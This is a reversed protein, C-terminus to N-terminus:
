SPQIVLILQSASTKQTTEGLLKKNNFHFDSIKLITKAIVITEFLKQHLENHKQSGVKM